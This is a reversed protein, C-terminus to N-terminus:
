MNSTRRIVHGVWRLQVKAKKVLSLESDVNGKKTEKKLEENKETQTKPETRPTIKKASSPNKFYETVLM